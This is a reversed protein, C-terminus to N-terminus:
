VSNSSEEAVSKLNKIGLYLNAKLFELSSKCKNHKSCNVNVVWNFSKCKELVDFSLINSITGPLYTLGLYALIISVNIEFIYLKLDKGLRFYRPFYAM